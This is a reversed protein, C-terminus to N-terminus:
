MTKADNEEKCLFKVDDISRAIVYLGGYLSVMSQFQVQDPTQKGKETKVEVFVTRGNKM